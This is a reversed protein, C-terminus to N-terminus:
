QTLMALRVIGNSLSATAVAELAIADGVRERLQRTRKQIAQPEYRVTERAWPLLERELETLKASDLSGLIDDADDESVGLEALASKAETQCLPCGLTRAVTAAMLLRTRAPLAPSAMGLETLAVLRAAGHIGPLVRHIWHGPEAAPKAAAVRKTRMAVRFIPSLLRAWWKNSLGEISEVPLALFTAMRNNLCVMCIVFALEAIAEPSLGAAALAAREAAAPRPNSRSLRRAFDVVARTTGDALQVEREVDRIREERYGMLKMAARTAGYCHRCANEQSTVLAAVDMLEIPTYVSKKEAMLDVLGRAFWGCPAMYDVFCPTFGLKSKAYARLEPDAHAAFVPSEWGIEDLMRPTGAPAGAPAAVTMATM